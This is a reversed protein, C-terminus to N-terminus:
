VMITYQVCDIQVVTYTRGYDSKQCTYSNVPFSMIAYHIITKDQVMSEM